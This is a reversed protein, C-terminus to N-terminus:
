KTAEDIKKAAEAAQAEAAKAAEKAADHVKVQDGYVPNDRVVKDSAAKEAKVQEATKDTTIKNATEDTKKGCASLSLAFSLAFSLAILSRVLGVIRKGSDSIAIKVM